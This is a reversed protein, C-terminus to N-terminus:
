PALPGGGAIGLAAIALLAAGSLVYAGALAWSTREGSRDLGRDLRAIFASSPLPRTRLLRAGLDALREAEDRPVDPDLDGLMRDHDNTM